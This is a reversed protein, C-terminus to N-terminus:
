ALKLIQEVCPSVTNNVDKTKVVYNCEGFEPKEFIDDTDKFSSSQVTDMWIVFDAAFINRVEKTPAVFDCIVHDTMMDNALKRMRKSQEIRGEPSFDWDNYMRRVNDANFWAVTKNKKKLQKQLEEAFTTKGSGPLGMILIRMDGGDFGM